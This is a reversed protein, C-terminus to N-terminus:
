LYHYKFFNMENLNYNTNVFKCKLEKMKSEKGKNNSRFRIKKAKDKTSRLKMEKLFKRKM